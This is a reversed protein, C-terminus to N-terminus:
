ELEINYYETAYFDLWLGLELYFYFVKDQYNESALELHLQQTIYDALTQLIIKRLKKM